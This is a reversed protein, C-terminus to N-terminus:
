FAIFCNLKTSVLAGLEGGERAGPRARAVAHEHSRGGQGGNGRAVSDTRPPAAPRGRRPPPERRAPLERVEPHRRERALSGRFAAWIATALFQPLEAFNQCVAATDVDLGNQALLVSRLDEAVTADILWSQIERSNAVQDMFHVLNSVYVGLQENQSSLRAIETTCFSARTGDVIVRVVGAFRSVLDSDDGRLVALADQVFATDAFERGVWASIARAIDGNPPPSVPSLETRIPPPEAKERSLDRITAEAYLLAKSSKEVIGLLETKHASEAALDATLGEIQPRFGDAGRSWKEIRRDKQAIEQRDIGVFDNRLAAFPASVERQPLNHGHKNWLELRHEGIQLKVALNKLVRPLPTTQDPRDRLQVPAIRLIDVFLTNQSAPSNFQRNARDQLLQHPSPSHNRPLVTDRNLILWKWHEPRLKITL